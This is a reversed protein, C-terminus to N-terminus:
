SNNLGWNYGSNFGTFGEGQARVGNKRPVAVTLLEQLQKKDKQAEDIAFNASLFSVLPKTFAIILSNPLKLTKYSENFVEKFSDASGTFIASTLALVRARDTTISNIAAAATGMYVGLTTAVQTSNQGNRVEFSNFRQLILDAQAEEIKKLDSEPIGDPYQQKLKNIYDPGLQIMRMNLAIVQAQDTEILAKNYVKMANLGKDQLLVNEIVGSPDSGVVLNIGKLLHKVDPNSVSSPYVGGSGRVREIQSTAALVFKTKQRANDSKAVANMLDEYVKPTSVQLPRYGSTEDFFPIRLGAAAAVLNQVTKPGMKDLSDVVSQISAKDKLSGIAVAVLVAANRDGKKTASLQENIVGLKQGETGMKGLAQAFALSNDNQNTDTKRFANSIQVLNKASQGPILAQMLRNVQADDLNNFFAKRKTEGIFRELLNGKDTPTAILRDVLQKREAPNLAEIKELVGRANNPDRQISEFVDNLTSPSSRNPVKGGNPGYVTSFHNAAIMARITADSPNTNGEIRYFNKSKGDSNPTVVWWTGAQDRGVQVQRGDPLGVFRSNVIAGVPKVPKSASQHLATPLTGAEISTNKVVPPPTSGSGTLVSIQTSM